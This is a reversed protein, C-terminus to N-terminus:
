RHAASSRSNSPLCSSTTAIAARRTPAHQQQSDDGDAGVQGDRSGRARHLLLVGGRQRPLDIERRQARLRLRAARRYAPACAGAGVHLGIGEAANPAACRWRSIPPPRDVRHDRRGPQRRQHLAALDPLARAAAVGLAVAAVVAALRCRFRQLVRAVAEFRWRAEGRGHDVICPWGTTNTIVRSPRPQFSLSM